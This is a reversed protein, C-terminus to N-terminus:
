LLQGGMSIPNGILYIASGAKCRNWARKKEAAMPQAALRSLMNAM